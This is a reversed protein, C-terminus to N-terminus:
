FKYTSKLEYFDSLGVDKFDSYYAIELNDIAIGKAKNLAIQREIKVAIRAKACVQLFIASTICLLWIITLLYRKIIINDNSKISQLAAIILALIFIELSIAWLCFWSAPGHLASYYNRTFNSSNFAGSCAIFLLFLVLVGIIVHILNTWYKVDQLTVKAKAKAKISPRVTNM